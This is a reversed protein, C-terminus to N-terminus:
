TKFSTNKISSIDVEKGNDDLIKLIKISTNKFLRIESEHRGRVPIMNLYYTMEWDVKNNQIESILIYNDGYGKHSDRYVGASSQEYTWSSGLHKSISLLELINTMSSIGRYIRIKNGKISHKLRLSAADFEKEDAKQLNINNLIEEKSYTNFNRELLDVLKMISNEQM